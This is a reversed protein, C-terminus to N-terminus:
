MKEHKGGCKVYGIRGSEELALQIESWPINIEVGKPTVLNWGKKTIYIKSKDPLILRSIQGLQKTPKVSRTVKVINKM